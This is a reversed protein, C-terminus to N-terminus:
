VPPAAHIALPDFGDSRRAVADAGLVPIGMGLPQDVLAAPGGAELDALTDLAARVCREAHERAIGSLAGVDRSARLGSAVAAAAATAEVAPRVGSRSGGDVPRRLVLQVPGADPLVAATIANWTAAMAPPLNPEVFALEHEPLLARRVLVEALIRAAPAPEDVMWDPVAGIWVSAPVLGNHLALEVGLLQLVLARGARTAPDSPMGAAFDQGVILPGAPVLIEVGARCLLRHAFGHDALARDPHVRGSVIERMPDAVVADIREFAAVVAQDPAALPQAETLLRVYSRRRAGAEDVHRRLIALARQAGTPVPPGSPDHVDLGGRSTPAAQWPEVFGGIRSLGESLERAPPVRVAIVGAGADIADGAEELADVIAPSSLTVGVRPPFPDGLLSAIERRAVRNADVRELAFRLLRLATEGAAVRHVPDALLEAELGLDVNGEAVDLALEPATRDYEDMALAFPLMIGGGLRRPDPGLFRDIVGAALPQGERDTGAVGLMRLIAREQGATTATRAQEGWATALARARVRLETLATPDGLGAM